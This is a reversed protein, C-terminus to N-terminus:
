LLGAGAGDIFESIAAKDNYWVRPNNAQANLTLRDFKNISAEAAIKSSFKCKQYESGGPGGNDTALKTWKGFQDKLRTAEMEEVTPATGFRGYFAEAINCGEVSFVENM